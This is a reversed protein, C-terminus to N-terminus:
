LGTIFNLFVMRIDKFNFCKGTYYLPNAPDVRKVHIYSIAPLYITCGIRKPLESGSLGFLVIRFKAM